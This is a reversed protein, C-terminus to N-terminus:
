LISYFIALFNVLSGVMLNYCCNDVFFFVINIFFYRYYYRYVTFALQTISKKKYYLFFALFDLHLELRLKCSCTVRAVAYFLKFITHNIICCGPPWLFYVFIRCSRWSCSDNYIWPRAVSSNLANFKVTDM